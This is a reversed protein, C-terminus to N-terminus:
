LFFGEIFELAKYFYLLIILSYADVKEPDGNRYDYAANAYAQDEAEKVYEEGTKGAQSMTVVGTKHARQFDVDEGLIHKARSHIWNEASEFARSAAKAEETLRAVEAVTAEKVEGSAIQDELQGQAWALNNLDGKLDDTEKAPVYGAARNSEDPMSTAGDSRINAGKLVAAGNELSAESKKVVKEFDKKAAESVVSDDGKAQGVKQPNVNDVSM